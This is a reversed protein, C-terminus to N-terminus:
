RLDGLGITDCVSRFFISNKIEGVGAGDDDKSGAQASSVAGAIGLALAAICILMKKRNM